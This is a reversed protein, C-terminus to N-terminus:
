DHAVENAAKWIAAVEPTWRERAEELWQAPSLHNLRYVIVSSDHILIDPNRPVFYFYGKGKVLELGIANSSILNNITRITFKAM